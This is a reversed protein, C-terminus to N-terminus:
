RFKSLDGQNEKLIELVVARTEEDPENALSVEVFLRNLEKVQRELRSIERSRQARSMM